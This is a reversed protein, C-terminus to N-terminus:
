ASKARGRSNPSIPVTSSAESDMHRSSAVVGLAVLAALNAFFLLGSAAYFIRNGVCDFFVINSFLAAAGSCALALRCRAKSLHVRALMGLTGVVALPLYVFYHPWSTAVFFPTALFLGLFADRTSFGPRRAFRYLGILLFACLAYRFMTFLIRSVSSELGLPRLVLREGLSALSQSNVDSVGTGFRASLQRAVDVYFAWTEGSGLVLVPMVVLFALLFGLAEAIFRWDRKIVFYSLFFLPYAKFAAAFALCAAAERRKGRDYLTASACLFVVILLSVQGFKLDHLLPFSSLTLAVGLLALVPRNRGFRPKV